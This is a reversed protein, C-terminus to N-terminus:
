PAITVPALPRAVWDPAVQVVPAAPIASRTDPPATAPPDDFSSGGFPFALLITMVLLTMVAALATVRLFHRPVRHLIDM